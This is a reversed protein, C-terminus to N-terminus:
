SHMGANSRPRLTDTFSEKLIYPSVSLAFNANQILLLRPKIENNIPYGLVVALNSDDETGVGGSTRTRM